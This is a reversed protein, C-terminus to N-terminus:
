SGFVKRITIGCATVLVIGGLLLVTGPWNAARVDDLIKVLGVIAATVSGLAGLVVLVQSYWRKRVLVIVPLVIVLALFLLVILGILGQM